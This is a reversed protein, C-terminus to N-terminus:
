TPLKPPAMLLGRSKQLTPLDFIGSGNPREVSQLHRVKEFLRDHLNDFFNSLLFSYKPDSSSFVGHSYLIDEAETHIQRCTLFLPVANRTEQDYWSKIYPHIHKNAPLLTFRYIRSRVELPLKLFPFPSTATSPSKYSTAHRVNSKQRYLLYRLKKVFDPVCSQDHKVARRPIAHIDFFSLNHIQLIAQVWEKEERCSENLSRGEHGDAFAWLKLSQLAPCEQALFRMFIKWDCLLITFEQECTMTQDFDEYCRAEIRRILRRYRRPLTELFEFSKYNWKGFSDTILNFSSWGYFVTEAEEQIQRNTRFISLEYRPQRNTGWRYPHIQNAATGSLGEVAWKLKRGEFKHPDHYPLGPDIERHFFHFEYIRQRIELPLRLFPPTPITSPFSM